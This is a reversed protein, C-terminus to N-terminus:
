GRKVRDALREQHEGFDDRWAEPSSFRVPLIGGVEQRWDGGRRLFVPPRDLRVAHDGSRFCEQGPKFVFEAMGPAEGRKEVFARGSKARIYVAQPSDSPVITTWGNAWAACEVEACTAARYHSARPARIAYTQYAGPPMQPQIRFAQQM